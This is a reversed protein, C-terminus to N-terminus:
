RLNEIKVEKKQKEVEETLLKIYEDLATLKTEVENIEREDKLSDLYNDLTVRYQRYSSIANYYNKLEKDWIQAMSFYLEMRDNNNQSFRLAASYADIANQFEGNKELAMALEKNTTFLLFNSITIKERLKTFCEVAEPYYGLKFNVKGLVYLLNTNTTDQLFAHQLLPHALSDKETIYYAIGLSRNVLLSSDGQQLCKEFRDIAVDYFNLNYYVFANLANMTANASDMKIFKESNDFASLYDEEKVQIKVLSNASYSDQDNIEWAKSFYDRAMDQQNLKEYCMAICRTLYNPNYSLDIRSYADLASSYKEAKFLLDAKRVEFHTNTSDIRLLNDYCDIGKSYQSIADYCLALQLIIPIDDPYEELLQNLVDIASYHNNLNRYCLAKQYLLEKTFEMRNIFEIAKSYQANRIYMQLTDTEIQEKYESDQSLIFPTHLFLLICILILRVPLHKMISHTENIKAVFNRLTRLM